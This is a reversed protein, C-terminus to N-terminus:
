LKERIRKGHYNKRELIFSGRGTYIRIFPSYDICATGGKKINLGDDSCM